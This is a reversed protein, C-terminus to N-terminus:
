LFGTNCSEDEIPEYLQAHIIRTALSTPYHSQIPHTRRRSHICKFATSGMSEPSKAYNLKDFGLVKLRIRIDLVFQIYRSQPTSHSCSIHTSARM